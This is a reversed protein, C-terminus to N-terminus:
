RFFYILAGLELTAAIIGFIFATRIDRRTRDPDEKM